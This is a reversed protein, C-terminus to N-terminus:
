FLKRHAASSRVASAARRVILILVIELPIFILLFLSLPSAQQFFRTEAFWIYVVVGALLALLAARRTGIPLVPERMPVVQFMISFVAFLLVAVVILPKRTLDRGCVLSIAIAAALPTFIGVRRWDLTQAVSTLRARTWRGFRIM